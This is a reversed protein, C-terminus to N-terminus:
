RTVALAGLVEDTHQGLRPQPGPATSTTKELRYPIGVMRIRGEEPDDVEAVMGNHVLQPTTYADEAPQVPVVPVGAPQLLALVEARPLRKFAAEIHVRRRNREEVTPRVGRTDRGEPAVDLLDYMTYNSDRVMMLHVWKGDACEYVTGRGHYPVTAFNPPEHEVRYRIQSTWLLAGQALSTEVWQGEGTVERAHLAASIGAGALLMAGYSPLPVYLFVPGAVYSGDGDKRYSPQEFHMGLRAQVLADYAPRDRWASTRGYGTISCFILRRHAEHVSEFDIGLRGMTGPRFSELLVDATTLLRGFLAMDGADKLDLIVSKKSRNWVRSASMARTPDGGPPEIKIVEAGQDALYAGALSGALGRALDLVRLGDLVGTM